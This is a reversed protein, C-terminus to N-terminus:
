CSSLGFDISKQMFFDLSLTLFLSYIERENLLRDGQDLREDGGLLVKDPLAGHHGEAENVNLVGLM